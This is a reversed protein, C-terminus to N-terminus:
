SVKKKIETVTDFIVTIRYYGVGSNIYQDNSSYYQTTNITKTIPDYTVVSAKNDRYDFHLFKQMKLTNSNADFLPLDVDLKLLSNFDLEERYPSHNPDNFHHLMNNYCSKGTGDTYKTLNIGTNADYYEVKLRFTHLYMVVIDNAIADNLQTTTVLNDLNDLKELKANFDASTVKKVLASVREFEDDLFQIHAQHRGVLEAIPVLQGDVNITVDEGLEIEELKKNLVEIIERAKADKIEYCEGTKADKIHCVCKNM